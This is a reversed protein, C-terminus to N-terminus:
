RCSLGRRRGRGLCGSPGVMQPPRLSSTEREEFTPTLPEKASLLEELRRMKEMIQRDTVESRDVALARRPRPPLFVVLFFLM